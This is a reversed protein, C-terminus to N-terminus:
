KQQSLKRNLSVYLPSAMYENKWCAPHGKTALEELLAPIVVIVLNMTHKDARRFAYETVHNCLFGVITLLTNHDSSTRLMSVYHFALKTTKNYPLISVSLYDNMLQKTTEIEVVDRHSKSSTDIACLLKRIFKVMNASDDGGRFDIRLLRMFNAVVCKCLDTLILTPIDVSEIVLPLLESAGEADERDTMKKWQRLITAYLSEALDFMWLYTNCEDLFELFCDIQINCDLLTVLSPECFVDRLMVTIRRCKNTKHSVNCQMRTNAESLTEM